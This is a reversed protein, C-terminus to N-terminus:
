QRFGALPGAPSSASAVGPTSCFLCPIFFPAAVRNGRKIHVFRLPPRMPSGKGGPSLPDTQLRSPSPAM